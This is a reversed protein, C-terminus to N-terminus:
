PWTVPDPDARESTFLLYIMKASPQHFNDIEPRILPLGHRFLIHGSTDLATDESICYDIKKEGRRSVKFRRAGGFGDVQLNRVELTVDEDLTSIFVGYNLPVCGAAIFM